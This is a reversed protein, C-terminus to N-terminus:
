ADQGTVGGGTLDNKLSTGDIFINVSNPPQGGGSFSRFGTGNVRDEAVSVGPSLAALDLFNRSPTPLKEIQETTINTAVESTRPEVAPATAIATVEELEIPQASLAFNEIATAGILVRVRRAQPANGIHRVSVEYLAPNLGPLVYFGDARSTTSRVAGTEPNRATIEATALPGGGEATIYGRITGTTNQATVGDAALVLLGIALLAGGLWRGVTRSIM